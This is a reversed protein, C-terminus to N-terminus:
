WERPEFWCQDQGTSAESITTPKKRLDIEAQIELLDKEHSAVMRKASDVSDFASRLNNQWEWLKKSSFQRMNDLADNPVNRYSTM